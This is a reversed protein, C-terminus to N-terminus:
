SCANWLGRAHAEAEDQAAAMQVALDVDENAFFSGHRAYGLRVIEVNLNTSRRSVQRLLRGFEDREPGTATEELRVLEGLIRESLWDKADRGFCEDLEPADVQAMRVTFEVAGDSADFSDGDDVRLVVFTSSATDAPTAEVGDAAADGTSDLREGTAFTEPGSGRDESGLLWAGAVAALLLGVVIWSVSSPVTPGRRSPHVPGLDGSV